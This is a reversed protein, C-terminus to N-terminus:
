EDKFLDSSQLEFTKNLAASQSQDSAASRKTLELKEHYQGQSLAIAHSVVIYLGNQESLEAPATVSVTDFVRVKPRTIAPMNILIDLGVNFLATGRINQYMARHYDEHVNGYDIPGVTHSGSTISGRVESNMNFEGGENIDAILNSHNRYVSDRFVNYETLTQRYGSRRNQSGGTNKPAHSVVTLHGQKIDGIVFKAVPDGTELKSVDKYRMTGDLCVALKMCSSQSAYGHKAVDNCFAHVRKKAGHWTQTDATTTGDYLLGAYGAIDKLVENSSKEKYTLGTTEIWFKPYDLYGDIDIVDGLSSPTNKISNVRFVYEADAVERAVLAVRLQAGEVLIAPNNKFFKIGDTIQLRVMPIELKSSEVMHLVGLQSEKSFPFEVGSFFISVRFVGTLSYPSSGLAM